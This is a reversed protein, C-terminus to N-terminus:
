NESEVKPSFHMPLAHMHAFLAQRLDTIIRSGAWEVYYRGAFLMIGQVIAVAPLYCCAGYLESFSLIGASGDPASLMSFGSEPEFIEGSLGGLAFRLVVIMGFTSGGHLIGCLLGVLLRPIYPSIFPFLRKYVGILNAKFTNKEEM